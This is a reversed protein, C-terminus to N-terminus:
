DKLKLLHRVHRNLNDRQRADLTNHYLHYATNYPKIISPTFGLKYVRHGLYVDEGGWGELLAIFGQASHLLSNHILFNGAGLTPAYSPLFKRVPLYLLFTFLYRRLGILFGSVTERPNPTFIRSTFSSRAPSLYYTHGLVLPSYRSQSIYDNLLNDSVIIDGDFFLVSINDAPSINLCKLGYNRIDTRVTQHNISSFSFFSFEPYVTRLSALQQQSFFRIDLVASLGLVRNKSTAPLKSFSLLFSNLSKLLLDYNCSCFLIHIPPSVSSLRSNGRRILRFLSLTMFYLSAIFGAYYARLSLVSSLYAFNIERSSVGNPGVNAFQGPVLLYSSVKSISRLHSIHDSNIDFSEDFANSRLYSVSYIVHQQCHERIRFFLKLKDVVLFPLYKCFIVLQSTNVHNIYKCYLFSLRQLDLQDDTGFIYLYKNSSLKVAQNIAGFIRLHSPSQQLILLQPHIIDVETNLHKYVVILSAESSLSSLTLLFSRIYDLSLNNLEYVPLVFSIDMHSSYLDM